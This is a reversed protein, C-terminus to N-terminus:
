SMMAMHESYLVILLSYKYDMGAVKRTVSEDGNITNKGLRKRAETLASKALLKEDALGDACINLRRAVEAIPENRFFAM